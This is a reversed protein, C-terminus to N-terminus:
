TYLSYNDNKMIQEVTLKHTLLICNLKRRTEFNSLLSGSNPLIKFNFSSFAECNFDM